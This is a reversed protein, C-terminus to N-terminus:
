LAAAGAAKLLRAAAKDHYAQCIRCELCNKGCKLTELYFVGSVFIPDLPSAPGGGIADPTLPRKEIYAGLVELYRAPDKLTARGALKFHSTIGGFFGLHQPLAWAGTLRLWPLALLMPRCLSEPAKRSYGMEYFHQTRMLCGPLCGENVILRLEGPFAAALASLARLDRMARSAPVLYDFVGALQRAQGPAHAEMLTSATLPLDPMAEKVALALNLDAITAGSLRTISQLRKLEAIVAPAMISAPRPLVVPNILASVPFPAERIFADMRGRKQPPRGSPVLASPLPLYVAEISPGFRRELDRWFSIPQDIYPISWREPPLPGQGERRREGSPGPFSAKPPSASGM